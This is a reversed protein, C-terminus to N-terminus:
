GRKQVTELWNQEVKKKLVEVLEKGKQAIHEGSVEFEWMLEWPAGSEGFRDKVGIMGMLVPKSYIAESQMLIGAVQNGLGGVQHEEATLVISTELGAKLIAKKDLPKLTHMNIIRTEIGFDEKLIWAARLAEPVEPGCAIISIDENECRYDTALSVSFADMFREKEGRYRYVNAVGWEYPTKENTIIPTAERAFRIYKPGSVQFLMHETARQTEVVDCPVSVHMNPLGCIQFLDELSQHTAGDPGVSVGGHAGVIFVNLNGYCITTRIQDLNRGVSFVGYNGYVPLKGEKAL